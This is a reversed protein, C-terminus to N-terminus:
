ASEHRNRAKKHGQLTSAILPARDSHFAPTGRNPFHRCARHGSFSMQQRTKRTHEALCLCPRFSAPSMLQRAHIGSDPDTFAPFPDPSASNGERTDIPLAFNVGSPTRAHIRRCVAAPLHLDPIQAPLRQASSPCSRPAGSASFSLARASQEVRAEM